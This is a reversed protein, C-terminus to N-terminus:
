IIPGRETTMLDTPPKNDLSKTLQIILAILIKININPASTGNRALANEQLAQLKQELEALRASGQAAQQALQDELSLVKSNLQQREQEFAAVTRATEELNKADDKDDGFGFFGSIKDGVESISPM